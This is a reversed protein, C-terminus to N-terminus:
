LVPAGGVRGTLRFFMNSIVQVDDRALHKDLAAMDRELDDRRIFGAQLMRDRVNDILNKLFFRREHGPPFVHVVADVVIDIVGAERFLRHTQRGISLDIGQARAYARYADM